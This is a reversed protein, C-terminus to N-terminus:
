PSVTVEPVVWGAWDYNYDEIPGATTELRLVIVKGAYESLDVEIPLWARDAQHHNPDVSRTLLLESRNDTTDVFINFTVGDSLPQQDWMAPNM